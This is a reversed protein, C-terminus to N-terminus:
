VGRKAKMNNIKKIILDNNHEDVAVVDDDEVQVWLSIDYKDKEGIFDNMIKVADKSNNYIYIWEMVDEDIQNSGFYNNIFKKLEGRKKTMLNVLICMGNSRESSILLINSLDLYSGKHLINCDFM